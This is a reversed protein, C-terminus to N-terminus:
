FTIKQSIESAFRADIIRTAGNLATPVHEGFLDNTNGYKSENPVSPCRGLWFTGWWIWDGRGSLMPVPSSLNAFMPVPSCLNRPVYTPSLMPMPSSHFMPVSSCLYRPVYTGPFMPLLYCLYPPVTSCLYRHVYTPPIYTRPFMPVPSCLNPSCLYRPVYTGAFM